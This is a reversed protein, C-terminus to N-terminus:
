PVAIRAVLPYHDSINVRPISSERSDLHRLFVWDIRGKSGPKTQLPGKYNRLADQFGRAELERLVPSDAEEHTNFDGAVIVPTDADYHRQIDELIERIQQARGFDNAKSELHTNYIPLTCHGLQIEVVLAMRGGRRPQLWSWRPMWRPGWNHLQHQFRLLRTQGIPFRSLVAQGQYASGGAVRQALEEFEMGFVYNMGLERAIEEAVNRYGTRRTHLDVEQLIYLDAALRGRFAQLIEEKRVGREINWNALLFESDESLQTARSAFSGSLIQDL